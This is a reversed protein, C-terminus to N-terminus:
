YGFHSETSLTKCGLLLLARRVYILAAANDFIYRFAESKNMRADRLHTELEKQYDEAYYQDSQRGMIILTTLDALHEESFLPLYTTTLKKKFELYAVMEEVNVESLSTGLDSLPDSFVNNHQLSYRFYLKYWVRKFLILTNRDLFKLPIEIGILSSLYRNNQIKEIAKSLQKNSGLNFKLKLIKKKDSTLTSAWDERKGLCKALKILDRRSLKDTFTGTKYENKLELTINIIEQLGKKLKKFFYIFRVLNIIPTQELHTTGVNSEPYRFTQATDDIAIFDLIYPTIQSTIYHLRIDTKQAIENTTEWLKKISHIKTVDFLSIDINRLKSMDILITKLSLEIGHRASYVIPYVLFDVEGRKNNNIIYNTLIEPTRLYGEAYTLSDPFGNTGVCANLWDFHANGLGFTQNFITDKEM